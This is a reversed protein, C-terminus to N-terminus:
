DDTEIQAAAQRQELDAVAQRLQIVQQSLEAVTRTLDMLDHDSLALGAQAEDLEIKVQQNIVQQRQNIASQQQAIFRLAWKGAISHWGARFRAILPGLLPTQAEFRYEQLVGDQGPEHLNQSMM